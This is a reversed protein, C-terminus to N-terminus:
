RTDVAIGLSSRLHRKKGWRGNAFNEGNRRLVLDIKSRCTEAVLVDHVNTEDTGDAQRTRAGLKHFMCSINVDAFLRRDVQERTNSKCTLQTPSDNM